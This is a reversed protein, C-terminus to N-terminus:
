YWPWHHWGLPPSDIHPISPGGRRFPHFDFRMWPKCGTPRIQFLGGSGMRGGMTLGEVLIPQNGLFIVEGGGVIVAAGAAGTALGLGGRTGYYIVGGSDKTQGLPGWDYAEQFTQIYSMDGPLGRVYQNFANGVYQCSGQAGKGISWLSNGISNWFGTPRGRQPARGMMAQWAELGAADILMTPVNSVYRALNPDHARLGAPDASIWLSALPDYWRNLYNVLGTYPDYRGGSFGQFVIVGTSSVYVVQGFPSYVNHDILSGSSNVADTPSGQNNVFVWTVVDPQTLSDVAGEAFVADVGSPSPMSLFREALAGD